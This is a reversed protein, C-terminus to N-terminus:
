WGGSQEKMCQSECGDYIYEDSEEYNECSYGSELSEGCDKYASQEDCKSCQNIDHQCDSVREHSSCMEETEVTDCTGWSSQDQWVFM